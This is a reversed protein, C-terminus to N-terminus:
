ENRRLQGVDLAEGRAMLEAQPFYTMAERLTPDAQIIVRYRQADGWLTRALEAKISRRIQEQHVSLSDADYVIEREELFSTFERMTEDGATFSADFAEFDAYELDHSSVYRSAFDFFARSRDLHFQLESYPYPKRIRVDPTIGGGGYVIRGASTHFEPRDAVSTDPEAPSDEEDIFASLYRDRDEYDRQILRGSPTYYRAVTLLLAAGSRLRYQRQVLGKGFTPEGVVLGRDWDQVAGSVIESASASGRDVLVIVPYDVHRGRGTTFYDDNSDPLRGRTYVVRKGAPLFMDAVEIAENLYGGSNGRLDLILRRMGENKLSQLARELEDSTTAGFRIMRVYGTRGDDMMFSYPVSYIPIEDRIIEFELLEQQGERFISINVPTGREGRLKDFVEQQDIGKASEGEIEVIIDGARIGLRDSPSGEIPSIVTLNGDVISFSVGIGYYTGRNREQMRSYREADMYTSHPDLERLMGTIAGDILKDGDVEEVYNDTVYSLVQAFIGFQGYSSQAHALVNGLFLSGTVVVAVMLLGSAAYFLRKANM